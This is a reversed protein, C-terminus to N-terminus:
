RFPPDGHVPKQFYKTGTSILFSKGFGEPHYGPILTKRYDFNSFFLQSFKGPLERNFVDRIKIINLNAVSYYTGGPGADVGFPFQAGMWGVLSDFFKGAARVMM